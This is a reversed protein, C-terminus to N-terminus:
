KTKIGKLRSNKLIRQFMKRKYMVENHGLDSHLVMIPNKILEWKKVKKTHQYYYPFGVGKYINVLEKTKKKTGGSDTYIVFFRRGAVNLWDLYTKIEGYLADFLYIEHIHKFISNKSIIDAIVKYGGSHGTLVIDHIKSDEPIDKRDKLLSMLEKMFRNFGGKDSLKGGFSDSVNKPGQPVVFIANKKSKSFQELLEYQELVSDVSNNWGHFHVVFDINKSPSYNKPILIAVMNDDFHGKYSYFENKYTYGKERDPHPFSANELNAYILEGYKTEKSIPKKACSFFIFMILLLGILYKFIKM